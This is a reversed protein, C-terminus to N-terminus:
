MKEKGIKTRSVCFKSGDLVLFYMDATAMAGEATATAGEVTATANGSHGEDSGDLNGIGTKLFKNKPDM